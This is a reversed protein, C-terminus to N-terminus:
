AALAMPPSRARVTFFGDHRGDLWWCRLTLVSNAGREVVWRMEGRKFHGAVTDGASEAVGSGVPLGATGCLATEAGYVERGAAWVHQRAHWLDVIRWRARSCSWLSTGSGSRAM